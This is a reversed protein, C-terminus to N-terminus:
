REELSKKVINEYQNALARDNPTGQGMRIRYQAARVQTVDSIISQDVYVGDKELNLIKRAERESM